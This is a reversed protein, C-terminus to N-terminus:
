RRSDLREEDETAGNQQPKYLRREHRGDEAKADTSVVLEISMPHLKIFKPRVEAKLDNAVDMKWPKWSM